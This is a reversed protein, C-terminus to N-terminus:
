RHDRRMLDDVPPTTTAAPDGSDAANEDPRAAVLSLLTAEPGSTTPAMAAAEPPQADLPEGNADIEYEPPMGGASVPVSLLFPLVLAVALVGIRQSVIM